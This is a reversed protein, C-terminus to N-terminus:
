NKYSIHKGIIPINPKFIIEGDRKMSEYPYTVLFENAHNEFYEYLDDYNKIDPNKSQVKVLLADQKEPSMNDFKPKIYNTYYETKFEQSNQKEKEMQYVKKGGILGALAIVGGIATDRIQKSTIEKLEKERVENITYNNQKRTTETIIKDILNVLETEKIRIVKKM